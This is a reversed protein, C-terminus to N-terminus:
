KKNIKWVAFAAAAIILVIAVVALIVILTNNDDTDEGKATDDPTQENSDPTQPTQPTGESGEPAESGDPIPDNKADVLVAEIAAGEYGKVTVEGAVPDTLTLAEGGVSLSLEKGEATVEYSFTLDAGSKISTPGDFTVGEVTPYTVDIATTKSFMWNILDETKYAATWADHAGSKYETYTFADNKSLVSNALKTGTCSVIPDANNHFTWIPFGVLSPLYKPDVGGCVPAAAAFKGPNRSIIDWTGYGGMSMGTVYLRSEDVAYDAIVKDVLEEAATMFTSKTADSQTYTGPGWDSLVWQSSAPCQPALILCPHEERETPTLLRQMVSGMSIHLSNDTGREGAGHFFLVLPYSKEPDYDDPVYLRYPLSAGKSSKFVEKVSNQSSDFINKVENGSLLTVSAASSTLPVLLAALMVCVLMFTLIRKM